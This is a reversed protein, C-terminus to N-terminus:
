VMLSLFDTKHERTLSGFLCIAPCVSAWAGKGASQVKESPRRDIDLKM